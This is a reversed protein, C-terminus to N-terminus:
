GTSVIEILKAPEGKASLVRNAVEALFPRCTGCCQGAGCHLAAVRWDGSADELAKLFDSEPVAACICVLM